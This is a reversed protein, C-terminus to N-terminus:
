IETLTTDGSNNIKRGELGCDFQVRQNEATEITEPKCQNRAHGEEEARSSM